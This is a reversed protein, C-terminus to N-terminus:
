DSTSEKLERIARVLDPKKMKYADAIGLITGAPRLRALTYAAPDILIGPDIQAAVERTVTVGAKTVSAAEETEPQGTVSASVPHGHPWVFVRGGTLKVQIRGGVVKAAGVPQEVSMDIVIQKFVDSTIQVEDSVNPM